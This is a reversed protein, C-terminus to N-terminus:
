NGLMGQLFDISKERWEELRGSHYRELLDTFRAGGRKENAVLRFPKEFIISFVTGHFSDTVVFSADRFIAIWGEVTLQARLDASYRRVPLGRRESEEMIIEDVEKSIDLVYAAIFQEKSSPIRECLKAYAEKEVLLTPDLTM